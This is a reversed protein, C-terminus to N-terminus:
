PLIIVKKNAEIRYHVRTEGLGELLERLSLNRDIKGSFIERSNGEYSVDIDYWRSVEQMVTKITANNFSFYGKKWDIVSEADVGHVTLRSDHTLIAQEGPKLIASQQQPDTSANGIASQRNVIKVKGELLTTRMADQDTYANINFHTGLVEVVQDGSRVKFPQKANKAVEFYAQGTIEVAREKGPFSTPFHISSLADLWVDTGDALQLHFTRGKETAITNFVVEANKNELYTISGDNKVAQTTGQLTITGNTVNDLMKITGDSLTLLVQQKAPTIDKKFDQQSDAKTTSPKNNNPTLLLYTGSALLVLVAAAAAIRGWPIRKRKAEGAISFVKDRNIVSEFMRDWNVHSYENERMYHNWLNEIYTKLEGEEQAEQMWEMLEQEEQVTAKQSTYVELLYAIREKQQSM